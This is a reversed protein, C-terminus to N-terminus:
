SQFRYMIDTRMVYKRGSTVPQGKHRLENHFLLAMGTHPLIDSEDFSTHGGGFDDNLYVIFTLLSLEGNARRFQGDRHWNFQQGVEYRYYRFRENIGTAVWNEIPHPLLDALRQWLANARSPDDVIVRTNNRAAGRVAPGVSTNIPADSFGASEALRILSVCEDPSFFEAVTFIEDTITTLTPM